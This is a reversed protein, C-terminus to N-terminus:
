DSLAPAAGAPAPAGGPAAAPRRGPLFLAPVLSLATFALAWWFPARFATALGHAVASGPVVATLGPVGEPLHRLAEKQLVVTLVATGLSAGVRQFVHFASTARPVVEKAVSGFAATMTPMMSAGLGMGRVVLAANLLFQNPDADIFAYPLTGVAVLVVGVLTVARVGVLTTLRQLLAVAILYGISQPLLMLASTLVSTGRVVQFYLPLPILVGYMAVAMLLSTLNGATFDRVKFLGLDLLAETRRRLAHLTFAVTLAVGVVLGTVARVGTFGGASGAESLGYVLGALGPVLLVLGVADLATDKSPAIVNRVRWLIAAITVVGFPVNIFFIWRWSAHDVLVGGLSPGVLPAFLAPVTVISMLRTLRSPGAAQALLAQGVPLALGGGVGQLIRFVILSSASWALGSLLSGLLFVAQSFLLTERAGFRAMTWAGLPLTATIALLYGTVVWQVTAIDADFATSLPGVAVNIITADLLGAFSGFAMIASLWWLDRDIRESGDAPSAAQHTTM